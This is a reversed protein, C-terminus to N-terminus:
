SFNLSKLFINIIEYFSIKLEYSVISILISIMILFILLFHQFKIKTYDKNGEEVVLISNGTKQNLINNISHFFSGEIQDSTLSQKSSIKQNINKELLTNLIILREELKSIKLNLEEFNSNNQPHKNKKNENVKSFQELEPLYNKDQLQEKIESLSELIKSKNTELNFNSSQSKNRGFQDIDDEM